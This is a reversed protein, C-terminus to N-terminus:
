RCNKKESLMLVIQNFGSVSEPLGKSQTETSLLFLFLVVDFDDRSHTLTAQPFVSVHSYKM